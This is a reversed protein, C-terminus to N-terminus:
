IMSLNSDENIFGKDARAWDATAKLLQIAIKMYM